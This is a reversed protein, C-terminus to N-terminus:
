LTLNVQKPGQHKLEVVIQTQAKNVAVAEPTTTKIAITAMAVIAVMIVTVLTEMAAMAMTTTAM